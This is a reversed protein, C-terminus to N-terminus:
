DTNADTKREGYNCFGDDNGGNHGHWVTCYRGAAFKDIQASRSILDNEM